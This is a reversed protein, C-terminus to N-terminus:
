FIVYKVPASHSFDGLDRAGAGSTQSDEISDANGPPNSVPARNRRYFVISKANQVETKRYPQFNRRFFAVIRSLVYLFGGPWM